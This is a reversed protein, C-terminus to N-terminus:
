CRDLDADALPRRPIAGHCDCNFASVRSRARSKSHSRVTPLNALSISQPRLPSARKDAMRSASSFFRKMFLSAHLQWYLELLAVDNHIQAASDVHCTGARGPVTETNAGPRRCAAHFPCALPSGGQMGWRVAPSCALVTFIDRLMMSAQLCEDMGRQQGRQQGGAARARLVENGALNGARASSKRLRQGHRVTGAAPRGVPPARTTTKADGSSVASLCLNFGIEM